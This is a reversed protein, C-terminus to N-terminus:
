RLETLLNTDNMPKKSKKPNKLIFQPASLRLDSWNEPVESNYFSTPVVPVLLLCYDKSM